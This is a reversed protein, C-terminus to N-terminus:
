RALLDQTDAHRRMYSRAYSCIPRVRLGEARAWDLLAQMLVGALGRGQLAAPVDTHVIDIVKGADAGHAAGSPSAASARHYDAVCLHGDVRISFRGPQHDVMPAVVHTVGPEAPEPPSASNM